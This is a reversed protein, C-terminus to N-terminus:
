LQSVVARFSGEREKDVSTLQSQVKELSERVPKLLTEANHLFDQRNEKLADKSLSAFTDRLQAQAAAHAAKQDEAARRTIELELQLRAAVSALRQQRMLGAVIAAAVGVVAALVLLFTAGSM